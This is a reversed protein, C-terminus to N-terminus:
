IYKTTTIHLKSMIIYIHLDHILIEIRIYIYIYIYQLGMATKKLNLLINPM